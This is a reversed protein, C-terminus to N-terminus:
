KLDEVEQEEENYSDYKLEKIHINNKKLEDNFEKKTYSLYERRESINKSLDDLKDLIEKYEAIDYDKFKDEFEKRLDVVQIMTKDIFEFIDDISKLGDVIEKEYNDYTVVNYVRRETTGGMLMQITGVVLNTAALAKVTKPIMPNKRISLYGLLLIDLHRNVNRYVYKVRQEIHKANNVKNELDDLIYDQEKLMFKIKDFADDPELFKKKFEDFDKEREKIKGVKRNVEDELELTVSDIFELQQILPKYGNEEKIDSLLLIDFDEKFNRRYEELLYMIYNDDIGYSVDYESFKKVRELEKKLVSIRDLLSTVQDSTTLAKDYLLLEEKEKECEEYEITLKNIVYKKEKLFSEFYNLISFQLEAEADKSPIFSMPVDEDISDVPYSISANEKSQKRTESLQQDLEISKEEKKEVKKEKKKKRIISKENSNNKKETLIDQGEKSNESKSVKPLVTVFEKKKKKKLKIYNKKKKGFVRSFFSVIVNEEKNDKENM